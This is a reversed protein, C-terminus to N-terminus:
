PLQRDDIIHISGIRRLDAVTGVLAVAKEFDM